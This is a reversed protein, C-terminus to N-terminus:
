QRLAADRVAGAIRAQIVDLTALVEAPLLIRYEGGQPSAQWDSGVFRAEILGTKVISVKAARFSAVAKTLAALFADNDLGGYPKGADDRLNIFLMDNGFATYGEGLAPHVKAAHRFFEDALPGALPVGLFQIRVFFQDGDSAGLDIVLVSRQRFAYGFAAALLTAQSSRTEIATVLSPDSRLKYGGPVIATELRGTFGVATAINKDEGAVRRTLTELAGYDLADLPPSGSGPAPNAQYLLLTQALAGQGLVLAVALVLAALCRRKGKISSKM